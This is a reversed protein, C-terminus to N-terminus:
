QILCIVHNLNFVVVYICLCVLFLSHKNKVTFYLFIYTIYLYESKVEICIHEHNCQFVVRGDLAMQQHVIFCRLDRRKQIESVCVCVCVCM